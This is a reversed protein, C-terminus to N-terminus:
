GQPFSVRAGLLLLLDADWAAWLVSSGGSSPPSRSGVVSGKPPSRSGVLFGSSRSPKFLLSGFEVSTAFERTLITPPLSQLSPSHGQCTLASCTQHAFHIPWGNQGARCACGHLSLGPQHQGRVCTPGGCAKLERASPAQSSFFSPGQRCGGGRSGM